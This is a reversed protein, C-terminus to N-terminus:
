DSAAVSALPERVWVPHDAADLLQRDGESDGYVWLTIADRDLGNAALWEDLRRLKEAARCNRGEIRGTYHGNAARELRTALVGHIGLATGVVKVYPEYSASVILVRHGEALHWRLRALTDTRLGGAVISAAFPEALAQNAATSTGRFAARTVVAKGADPDQRALALALRHTSLLLRVLLRGTGAVRRVFPVVNDGHTLTGDFDFAAVVAAPGADGAADASV